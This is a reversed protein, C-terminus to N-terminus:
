QEAFPAVWITEGKIGAGIRIRLSDGVRPPLAHGVVQVLDGVQGGLAKV